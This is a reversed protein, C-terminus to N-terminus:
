RTFFLDTQILVGDRIVVDSFNTLKYGYKELLNIYFGISKQGKYTDGIIVEFQLVKIKKNLLTEKAGGLVLYEAGQVDIKIFDILEISNSNCFNDITDFNCDITTLNDSKKFGWVNSKSFTLLSNTSSKSNISFKQHSKINSFGFNYARFKDISLSSLTEYSKLYPEFSYIEAKKFIKRFKKASQGIHAGVDFIILDSKIDCLKRINEESSLSVNLLTDINVVQYGFIKFIKQILGKM